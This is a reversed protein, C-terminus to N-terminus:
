HIEEDKTGHSAVLQIYPSDISEKGKTTMVEERIQVTAERGKGASHYNRTLKQCWTKKKWSDYWITSEKIQSPIRSMILSTLFFFSFSRGTVYKLPECPESVSIGCPYIHLGWRTGLGFPPQKQNLWTKDYQWDYKYPIM